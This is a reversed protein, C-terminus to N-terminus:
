PIRKFLEYGGIRTVSQYHTALWDTPYLNVWRSFGGVLVYEPSQTQVFNYEQAPPKGNLWIYSVATNLL